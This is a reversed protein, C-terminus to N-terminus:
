SQPTETPENTLATHLSNVFGLAMALVLVAAGLVVPLMALWLPTMLISDSTTQRVWFNDFRTWTGALLIISFLFGAAYAVIELILCVRAPLLGTVVDIRIHNGLRLNQALGFFVIAILLYSAIEDAWMTPANFAYRAVVDATTLIMMAVVCVVGIAAM